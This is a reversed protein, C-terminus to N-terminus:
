AILRLKKDRQELEAYAINFQKILEMYDDSQQHMESDITRTLLTENRGVLHQIHIKVKNDHLCNAWCYAFGDPTVAILEPAPESVERASCCDFIDGPQWHLIEPWQDHPARVPVPAAVPHNDVVGIWKLLRSKLSM